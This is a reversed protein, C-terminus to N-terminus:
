EDEDSLGSREMAALAATAMKCGKRVKKGEEKGAVLDSGKVYKRLFYAVSKAQRAEVGSFVEVVRLQTDLKNQALLAIFLVELFLTANEKTFGVNLTKLVDLRLCRRAVLYAYMRAVNAIESAQVADEATSLSAGEDDSGEEQREGILPFFKWLAISFSMKYKKERLLMKALVGYYANYTQEARVGRLIVPAVELDQKRTLRLKSLRALADTADEASTIAMFISRHVPSTLKYHAFLSQYDIQDPDGHTTKDARSLAPSQPPLKDQRQHGKWSAGVLWWKGKKDSNLIDSRTVGLPETARLQRSNLTGLAKRMRTLHEGTAGAANTAQRIKNNKLDTITDMMVRTRINIGKGDSALRASVDNMMQMIGKLATPHDSRLQPGCDRMIRLLLEASNEGFDSLLLRIHDYVLASSIVGLTFLNALLSVLNSSEKGTAAPDKYYRDFTEVLRSIIEAGFDAGVIKYLAAIFAAHLIIYTNQLASPDSFAALLLDILVTSVDQRPNTSYLRDFEDVISIINAESLKNLSGQAQRRLKEIVATDTEPPKRLSPPIYKTTSTGNAPVPAIYPNERVARKRVPEVHAVSAYSAQNAGSEESAAEDADFGQFSGEKLDEDEDESGTGGTLINEPESLKESVQVRRRKQELWDRGERKRKKSDLDDELGHLMDDFGDDFVPGKQKAKMGLKKELALIEADEEEQKSKFTRSSADLVIEPSYDRSGRSLSDSEDDTLSAAPSPSLSLIPTTNKLAAPEELDKDFNGDFDEGDGADLHEHSDSADEELDRRAEQRRQKRDTIQTRQKKNSQPLGLKQQLAFPLQPGKRNQPNARSM